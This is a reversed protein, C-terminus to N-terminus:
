EAVTQSLEAETECLWLAGIVYEEVYRFVAHSIVQAEALPQRLVNTHTGDGATTEETKSSEESSDKKKSCSCSFAVSMVLILALLRYLKTNQNRM